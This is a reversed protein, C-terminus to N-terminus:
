PIIKSIFDKQAVLTKLFQRGEKVKALLRMAALERKKDEISLRRNQQYKRIILKANELKAKEVHEGNAQKIILDLCKEVLKDTSNKM